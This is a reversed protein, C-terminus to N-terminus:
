QNRRQYTDTTWIILDLISQDIMRDQWGLFSLRTNINDLTSEKGDDMINAVDKIVRPIETPTLLKNTLKQELFKHIEEM